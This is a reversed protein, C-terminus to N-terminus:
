VLMRFNTVDVLEGGGDKMLKLREEVPTLIPKCAEM